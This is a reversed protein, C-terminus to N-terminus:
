LLSKGPICNFCRQQNKRRCSQRNVQRDRQLYLACCVGVTGAGIVVINQVSM